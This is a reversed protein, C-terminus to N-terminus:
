YEHWMLFMSPQINVQFIASFPNEIKKKTISWKSVYEKVHWIYNTYQGFSNNIEM